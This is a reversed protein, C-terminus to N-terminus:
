GKPHCTRPRKLFPKVKHQRITAPAVVQPRLLPIPIRALDSDHCRNEVEGSGQLRWVLAPAVIALSLILLVICPWLPGVQHIWWTDLQGRALTPLVDSILPSSFWQMTPPIAGTLAALGNILVGVSYLICLLWLVAGTRKGHSDDMVSGIPLLLLPMAPVLYRPGFSNGAEPAYFMSYPIVIALFVLLALLSNKNFSSSKIQKYIGFLGAAMIPSYFFLGRLPTFFNLFLGSPLSFSFGGFLGPWQQYLQESSTYFSGFSSYNYFALLLVGISSALLFSAAGKVRTSVSGSSAIILYGLFVPVLIGDVYDVTLATGVALGCLLFNRIPPQSGGKARRVANLAFCLALLVFLASVDSQFLYTAFPWSITSFAYAFAIFVAARESCFFDKALRYLVYVALANVLAVFVESLLLVKGFLTFGGELYFGLAVFPYALIATGPASASYYAGKYQFLDMSNPTFEGVKGVSFAHNAWIAHDLDIFSTPHDAAWVGNLCVLFILFPV